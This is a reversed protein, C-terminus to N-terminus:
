LGRAPQKILKAKLIQEVGVPLGGTTGDSSVTSSVTKALGARGKAPLNGTM